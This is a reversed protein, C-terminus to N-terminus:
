QAAGRDGMDIEFLVRFICGIIGLLLLASNDTEIHESGLTDGPHSQTLYLIDQLAPVRPPFVQNFAM